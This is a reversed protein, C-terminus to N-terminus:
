DNENINPPVLPILSVFLGDETKFIPKKGSVLKYREILNIQVIGSSEFLNNKPHLTNSIALHDDNEIYVCIQM